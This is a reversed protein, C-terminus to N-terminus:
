AVVASAVTLVTASATGATATVTAVITHGRDDATITYTSSAQGPIGECLRGNANCHLWAYTLSGPPGSWSAPSVTLAAGVGATGALTPQATAALEGAAAIIGALPSYAATTGATDTAHVTVALTQGVDRAVETYTGRTAGTIPTCRAGVPNCRYWQYAYTITGSGRWTGATATLKAKQRLTGSILPLAVSVPGPYARVPDSGLSLVTSGRARVAAVLTHGIDGATPTYVATTAAAIRACVRGNINCRLWSYASAPAPRTFAPAGVRLEGGVVAEGDLPPQKTAALPASPAAVLGALSAYASATGTGDSARVTLGLTRGVDKPVERYTAKTAGRISSCHAGRTDCRYWQYAYTVKGEGSWSGPSAVLQEGARLTGTVAPRTSSVPGGAVVAIAGLLVPLTM